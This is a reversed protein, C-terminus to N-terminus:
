CRGRCSCRSSSTNQVITPPTIPAGQPTGKGEDKNRTTRHRKGREDTEEVAAELWLKLLHLMSGDVIRRALCRMLECHPISDFYGSLDADVVQTYGGNLLERVHDVAELPNIGARYADAFKTEPGARREGTSRDCM